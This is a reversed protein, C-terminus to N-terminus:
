REVGRWTKEYGVVKRSVSGQHGNGKRGRWEVGRRRKRCGGEVNGGGRGRVEM